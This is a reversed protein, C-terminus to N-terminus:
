SLESGSHASTQLFYFCNKESRRLDTLYRLGYPLVDPYENSIKILGLSGGYWHGQKPFVGLWGACYRGWGSTSSSEDDYQRCVQSYIAIGNWHSQWGDFLM